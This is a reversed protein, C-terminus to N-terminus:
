AGSAVKRQQEVIMRQMEAPKTVIFRYKTGSVNIAISNWDSDVSSIQDYFLQVSNTYLQTKDLSVGRIGGECITINSGAWVSLSWFSGIIVVAALVVGAFFSLNAKKELESNHAGAFPNPMQFHGVGMSTSAKQGRINDPIHVCLFWAILGAVVLTGVSYLLMEQSRLGGDSALEKGLGANNSGQTSINTNSNFGNTM